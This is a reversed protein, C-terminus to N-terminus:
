LKVVLQNFRTKLDEFAAERRDNPFRELAELKQLMKERGAQLGAEVGDSLKNRKSSPAAGQLENLTILTESEAANLSAVVDDTLVKLDKPLKAQRELIRLTRFIQIKEGLREDKIKQAEVSDGDDSGNELLVTLLSLTPLEPRVDSPSLQYSKEFIDGPAIGKHVESYAFDETIKFTSGFTISFATITHEHNNELTFKVQDDLAEAKLVEYGRTRTVVTFQKPSAKAGPNILTTYVFLSIIPLAILTALFRRLM